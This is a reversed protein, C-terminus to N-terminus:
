SRFLVLTSRFHNAALGAVAVSRSTRAVVVVLRVIGSHFFLVLIPVGAVIVYTFRTRGIALFTRGTNQAGVAPHADDTTTAGLRLLVVAMVVMPSVFIKRIMMMVVVVVVVVDIVVVMVEVV